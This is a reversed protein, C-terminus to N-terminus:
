PFMFRGFAILIPALKDSPNGPKSFAELMDLLRIADNDSRAGMLCANLYNVIIIRISEAPVESISKLTATLKPWTLDGKVLARCLDIVEKNDLPQELLGMAEDASECGHVMALMVLAQRPSGGCSRAVMNLIENSPDLGERECVDDLLDMIDDHRLLKLGYRQCRTAINDPVKGADTTCFFFFVHAPPEEVTKLLSAWAQKSLMHAEDLIVAKNPTDGFGHYRLPAMIDRMVDIGNNTAADVEIVNSPDVQFETTLIRALTTKGTGPDGTFLFAHPRATDKLMKQLSKVVPDQGVVDKFKRPRYKTHLPETTEVTAVETLQKRAM